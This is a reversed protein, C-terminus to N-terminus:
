EIRISAEDLEIDEVRTFDIALQGVSPTPPPTPDM